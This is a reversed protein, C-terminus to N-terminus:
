QRPRKAGAVTNTGPGATPAIARERIAAQRRALNAMLKKRAEMAADVMASGGTPARRVAGMGAATGASRGGGGRSGGGGGRASRGRSGSGMGMGGGSRIMQPRTFQPVEAASGGICVDVYTPSSAGFWDHGGEVAWDGGMDGLVDSADTSARAPAERVVPAGDAVMPAPGAGADKEEDADDVERRGRGKGNGREGERERAEQGGEPLLLAERLARHDQFRGAVEHTLVELYDLLGERSVLRDYFTGANAAVRKCEDDHEKCWTLVSALDSLDAAVPIHDAHEPGGKSIDYPVLLPFYWIHDAKTISAVKLIVVGLPMMSAYRNAACHGDVYVHYKFKVQEYMPIRSVLGFGLEDAKIYTM